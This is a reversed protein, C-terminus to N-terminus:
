FMTNIFGIIELAGGWTSTSRMRSVYNELSCGEFEAIQGPCIAHWYNKNDNENLLFDCITQRIKFSDHIVENEKPQFYSLSNFLCSM